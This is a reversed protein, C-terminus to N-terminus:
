KGLTVSVGGSPGRSPNSPTSTGTVRPPPPTTSTWPMFKTEDVTGVVHTTEKVVNGNKDVCEGARPSRSTYKRTSGTPCSVCVKRDGQNRFVSGEPCCKMCVDKGHIFENLAHTVPEVKPGLWGAIAGGIGGSSVFGGVSPLLGCTAKCTAGLDGTVGSARMAAICAVECGSPGEPTQKSKLYLVVGVGGAIGVLAAVTGGNM